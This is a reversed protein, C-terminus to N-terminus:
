YGDEEFSWGVKPEDRVADYGTDWRETSEVGYDAQSYIPQVSMSGKANCTQAFRQAYAEDVFTGYCTGDIIVTYCEPTPQIM